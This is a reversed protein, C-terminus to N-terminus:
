INNLVNILRAGNKYDENLLLNTQDNIVVVTAMTANFQNLLTQKNDVLVTLNTYGNARQLAKSQAISGSVYDVILFRVNPYNNMVEKRIHSMHGDCIPCWMTFYLVVADHTLLEDSLDVDQNFTTTSIFNASKGLATRKDKREPNLDEVCGTILLMLFSMLFLKILRM